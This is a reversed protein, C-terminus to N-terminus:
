RPAAGSQARRAVELLEWWWGDHEAARGDGDGNQAVPVPTPAPEVVPLAPVIRAFAPLERIPTLATDRRATAAVAPEGRCIAERLHEFATASAAEVDADEPRRGDRLLRGYKRAFYCALAYHAAPRLWREYPVPDRAPVGHREVAISARLVRVPTCMERLLEALPAPPPPSTSALRRDLSLQLAQASRAAAGLQDRYLESAARLFTARFWLGAYPGDDDSHETVYSVHRQFDRGRTADEDGDVPDVLLSALNLRAGLNRPDADLAEEYLRKALPERGVRQVAEGLAFRAYSLWSSTGMPPRASEFGMSPQYALWISAPLILRQYRESPTTTDDVITELHLDREWITVQGQEKGKANCLLLTLGAGGRSDIPRLTSTLKFRNRPVLQGLVALVQSIVGAAPFATSVSPPLTFSEDTGGVWRPATTGTDEDLRKLHARLASVLSTGIDGSEPGAFPVVDLGFKRRRWLALGGLIVLVVGVAIDIRDRVRDFAREYWAKAATERRDAEDRLAALTAPQVCADRGLLRQYATQAADLYGAAYL